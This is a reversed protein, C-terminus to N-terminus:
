ARRNDGGLVAVGILCWPVARVVNLGAVGRLRRWVYFQGVTGDAQETLACGFYPPQHLFRLSGESGKM